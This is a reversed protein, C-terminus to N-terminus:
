DISFLEKVKLHNINLNTFEEVSEKVEFGEPIEMLFFASGAVKFDKNKAEPYLNGIFKAKEGIENIKNNM